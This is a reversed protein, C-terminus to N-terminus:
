TDGLDILNPLWGRASAARVHRQLRRAAADHYDAAGAGSAGASMARSMVAWAAPAPTVLECSTYYAGTREDRLTLGSEICESLVEQDSPVYQPRARACPASATPAGGATPAGEATPAGGATPASGVTPAESISYRGSPALAGAGAEFCFGSSVHVFGVLVHRRGSTLPLAEHLLKGCHMLLDGCGVAVVGDQAGLTDRAGPTGQPRGAGGPAGLSAFRLGGGGFDRGPTSLLVSFSLLNGDRHLPLRDQQRGSGAGKAPADYRAIFLDRMSLDSLSYGYQQAMTRLVRKVLPRLLAALIGMTSRGVVKVDVEIDTTPFHEHRNTRWGGISTAHAEAASIVSRATAASLLHFVRVSWLPHRSSCIADDPWLCTHPADLAAIDEGYEGDDGDSPLELEMLCACVALTTTRPQQICIILGFVCRRWGRKHAFMRRVLSVLLSCVTSPHVESFVGESSRWRWQWSQRQDSVSSEDNRFYNSM